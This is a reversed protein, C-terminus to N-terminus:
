KGAKTLLDAIFNRVNQYQSTPTMTDAEARRAQEWANSEAQSAANTRGRQKPTAGKPVEATWADPNEGPTTGEITMPKGGFTMPSSRKAGTQEKLNQWQDMTLKSSDEPIPTEQSLSSGANSPGHPQHYVGPTEVDATYGQGPTNAMTSRPYAKGEVTSRPIEVETGALGPKGLPTARVVNPNPNWEMSGWRTTTTGTSGSPRSPAPNKPTEAVEAAAGPGEAGFTKLAQGVVNAGPVRFLRMLSPIGEAGATAAGRVISPGGAWLGGIALGTGASETFRDTPDQNAGPKSGFLTHYLVNAGLSGLTAGGPVTVAEAGPILSGLGAGAVGGAINAMREGMDTQTGPTNFRELVEQHSPMHDFSEVRGDPGKIQINAM